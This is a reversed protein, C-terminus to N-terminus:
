HKLQKVEIQVLKDDIDLKNVCSQEFLNNYESLMNNLFTLGEVERHARELKLTASIRTGLLYYGHYSSLEVELKKQIQLFLEVSSICACILSILCNVSSVTQQEIYISLGVSFVSNLASLIILPVRFYVLQAQLKLYSQKHHTSLIDSNARVNDLVHEVDSSWHDLSHDSNGSPPTPSRPPTPPFFPKISKPLNALNTANFEKYKPSVLEQKKPVPDQKKPIPDLFMNQIPNEQIDIPLVNFESTPSALSNSSETNILSPTEGTEIDM